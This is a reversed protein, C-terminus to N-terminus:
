YSARKTKEILSSYTQRLQDLQQQSIESKNSHPRPKYENYEFSFPVFQKVEDLPFHEYKAVIKRVPAGMWSDFLREYGLFDEQFIDRAEGFYGCNRFHNKEFRKLYTSIVSEVVDGYLFIVRDESSLRDSWWDYPLHTKVVNWGDINVYPVQVGGNNYFSDKPTKSGHELGVISRFLWTSGSRPISAIILKAM